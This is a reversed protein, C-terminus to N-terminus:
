IRRAPSLYKMNLKAFIDRETRTNVLVGDAYLGHQNLKYGIAKAHGRMRENFEASGTLYLLAAAASEERMCIIDVHRHIGAILYVASTKEPGSSMVVVPPCATLINQIRPRVGAYVLIDIDGSDAAGRRYSGAFVCQYPVVARFNVAFADIHERPIRMHLHKYYKLGIAQAHNLELRGERMRARVDRLSRIGRRYWSAATEPGVGYLSGLERMAKVRPSKRLQVLDPPTEGRAVAALKEAITSTGDSAGGRSIAEIYARARHVDGLAMYIDRYERLVDM